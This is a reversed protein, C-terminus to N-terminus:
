KVADLHVAFYPNTIIVVTDTEGYCDDLAQRPLTIPVYVGNVLGTVRWETDPYRAVYHIAQSIRMRM